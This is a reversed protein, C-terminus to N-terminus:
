KAPQEGNPCGDKLYAYGPRDVRIEQVTRGEYDGFAMEIMTLRKFYHSGIYEDTM